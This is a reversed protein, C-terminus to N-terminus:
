CPWVLVAPGERLITLAVMGSLDEFIFLGVVAPWERLIALVEM